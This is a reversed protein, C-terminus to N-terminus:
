LVSCLFSFVSCCSDWQFGSTFEPAGYPYATGAGCTVGMTYSKNCIRNYTIFSSLVPNNNHCVPFLPLKRCM